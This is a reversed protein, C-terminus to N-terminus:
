DRVVSVFPIATAMSGAAVPLLTLGKLVERRKM